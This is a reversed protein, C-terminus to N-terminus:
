KKDSVNNQEDIKHGLIKLLDMFIENMKTGLHNYKSNPVLYIIFIKQLTTKEPNEVVTHSIAFANGQRIM